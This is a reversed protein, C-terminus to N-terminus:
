GTPVFADRGRIYTRQTQAPNRNVLPRQFMAHQLSRVEHEVEFVVQGSDPDVIDKFRFQHNTIEETVLGRAKLFTYPGTFSGAYIAIHHGDYPALPEATEQFLLEQYRGIRVRAEGDEAMAPADMVQSYFRAIADASGVPVSFAVYPVGLQMSGFRPHPEYCQFRNGWPCTADVRDGPRSFSFATGSLSGQVAELRAELDDLSPIVLGIHGRLVQPGRTPLHFQQEGANIWMNELGVMLYPDRTLGLGNVYFLTALSQDPITVNVHEMLVVSGVDEGVGNGNHAM